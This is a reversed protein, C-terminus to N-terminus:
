QDKTPLSMQHISQMGLGLELLRDTKPKDRYKSKVFFCYLAANINGLQATMVKDTTSDQALM